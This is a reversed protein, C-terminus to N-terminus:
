KFTKKRWWLSVSLSEEDDEDAEDVPTSLSIVSMIKYDTIVSGSM